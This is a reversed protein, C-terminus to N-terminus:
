VPAAGRLWDNLPEGGAPGSLIAYLAGDKATFRIDQGTYEVEQEESFAGETTMQTPGEGYVQWPTTGYIAEGNVALWRGM